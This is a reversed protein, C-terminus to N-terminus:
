PETWPEPAFVRMAAVLHSCRNRAGCSCHWVGRGHDREFTVSYTHGEGTCQARLSNVDASVITLRGELLYTSLM